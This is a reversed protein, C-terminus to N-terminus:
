SAVGTYVMFQIGMSPQHLDLTTQSAGQTNNNSPGDTSGSVDLSGASHSHGDSAVPNSGDARTSTSSPGGTNGSISLASSGHTHSSMGHFHDMSGSAAGFTQGITYSDGAGVPVRNRMDPLTFTTSGDGTNPSGWLVWLASFTTRSIAQGNLFKWGKAAVPTESSGTYMRVEGVNTKAVPELKAMTLSNDAITTSVLASAAQWEFGGNSGNYTLVEDDAPTDVGFLKSPTVHGDLIKASTIAGDLIKATTVASDAIKETTVASTQISATTVVSSGLAHVHDSASVTVASGSANTTGVSVATGTAVEHVHDARAVVTSSGPTGSSGVTVNAPNGSSSWKSDLTAFNAAVHTDVNVVDTGEALTLGLNVSTTSM